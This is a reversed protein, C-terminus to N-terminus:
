HGTIKLIPDRDVSELRFNAVEGFVVVANEDTLGTKTDAFLGTL